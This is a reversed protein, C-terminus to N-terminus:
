ELGHRVPDVPVADVEGLAARDGGAGRVGVDVRHQRGLGDERDDGDQAGQQEEGSRGPAARHEGRDPEPEAIRMPPRYGAIM